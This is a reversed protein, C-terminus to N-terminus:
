RSMPDKCLYDTRNLHTTRREWRPATPHAADRCHWFAPEIGLGALPNLIWLDQLQLQPQFQPESRIGPGAVGYASPCGFIFFLFYVVFFHPSGLGM